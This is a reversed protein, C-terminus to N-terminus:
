GTRGEALQLRAFARLMAQRKAFAQQSTESMTFSVPAPAAVADHTARTPTGGIRPIALAATLAVAAGLLALRTTWTRRGGAAGATKTIEM